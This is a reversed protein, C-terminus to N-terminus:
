GQVPFPVRLTFAEPGPGDRELGALRAGAEVLDPVHGAPVWWLVVHPTGLVSFWERRRRLVAAHEPGYVYARLSEVSEWVSMNVIVDDGWPRVDTANGSETQLRWVFGPAADAVANVEDLAAVFDALRPSDLPELLRAVNLQALHM